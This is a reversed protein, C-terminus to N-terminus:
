RGLKGSKIMGLEIWKKNKRLQDRAIIKMEYEDCVPCLWVMKRDKAMPFREIGCTPCIKQSQPM